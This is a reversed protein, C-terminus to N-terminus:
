QNQVSNLLKILDAKTKLGTFQQKLEGDKFIIITPVGSVNYKVALDQSEDVNVKCVKVDPLETDLQNLIPIFTRCPGCWTAWFDVLAVGKYQLVESEFTENTLEIM